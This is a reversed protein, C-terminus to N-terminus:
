NKQGTAAMAAQLNPDNFRIGAIVDLIYELTPMDAYEALVEPDSLAPEFTEMSYAVAELMVDLLTKEEDESPNQIVEMIDAMKRFKAITLTHIRIPKDNGDEDVWGQLAIEEVTYAKRM